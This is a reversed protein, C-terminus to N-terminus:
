VCRDTTFDNFHVLREGIIQTGERVVRETSAPYHFQFNRVWRFGVIQHVVCGILCTAFAMLFENYPSSFGDDYLESSSGLKRCDNTRLASGVEKVRYRCQQWPRRLMEILLPRKHLHTSSM